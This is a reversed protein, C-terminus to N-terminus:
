GVVALFDCQILSGGGLDAQSTQRAPRANEDPFMKVWFENVAARQSSDRMQVNLKLIDDTTGGAAEVIAKVHAFMNECQAALTEPLKGTQPDRGSILGTAVFNGIRSAAPIPNNHAYTPINISQRRAM